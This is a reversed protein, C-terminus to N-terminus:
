FKVEIGDVIKEEGDSSGSDHLGAGTVDHRADWSELQGLPVKVLRHTEAGNGLQVLEYRMRYKGWIPLVKIWLAYWIGCLILIGISTVIYTGYWFSVDGGNRGTAPPYWPMIILYLQVVVSFILVPLWARFQPQPLGLRRHRARIFFIGITMLLNFISSPYVQLDTTLNFADGAPPALILLVTLVWKVVYPGLPTGFPKTSVWFKPWPLVGQRGCERILRSTGLFVAVLNGFSSLAILFNLGKVSSSSGFVRTFLLGAAITKGAKIDAVPIAAFYAINALMYLIAVLIVAAFGSNKIKKVPNQVEGVVNFANEYGAYAFIIKIMANTCGYVTAEGEFANRFHEHSDKVRTHGGLVVLGTISIFVLTVLKVMGIGNSAWYSFRTNFVVCLFALSYVAIALGKTEWETAVRGGAAFLYNACVVSNGSSFSLVVTQVAFALPFFYRPRPYAQELYVAESGSRNPFYAAFELYVSFMALSTLLGIFWYVLSLGVSGTGRLISSPTSFIGTGIMKSLNLFVITVSGVNLGLPSTTEVPAGSAEQYSVPSDNDSQAGVIKLGKDSYTDSTVGAAEETVRPTTKAGFRQFMSSM